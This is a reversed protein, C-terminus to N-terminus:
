EPEDWSKKPRTTYREFNVYKKKKKLLVYLKSRKTKTM